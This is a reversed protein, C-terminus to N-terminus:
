TSAWGESVRAAAHDPGTRLTLVQGALRGVQAPDHSVLVVTGGEATFDRVVREVAAGSTADLAATPEDLLLVEPGVALARALCVRQAEGGSLATSARGAIRPDLGVRDLLDAIHEDPLGPAAYRVEDAVRDALLVPHQAVLVVRRRLDLVDHAELPRGRFAVSGATPDLFRNLLRLLTSKGCGSDGVVATCGAAPIEASLPELLVTRGRRVGVRDLAFTPVPATVGAAEGGNSSV